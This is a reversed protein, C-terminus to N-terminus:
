TSKNPKQDIETISTIKISILNSYQFKTSDRLANQIIEPDSEKPAQDSKIFFEGQSTNKDGKCEYSVIFKM